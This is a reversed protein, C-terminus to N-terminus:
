WKVRGLFELLKKNFLDPKEEHPSHGAGKVTVLEAGAIAEKLIRVPEKFALDQDGWFIITPVRIEGLRPTVHKWNNIAKEVYIYGNVSTTTMRRRSAEKMEPHEEFRQRMMPNSTANYEFVAAMGKTRALEDLRARTEAYDAPRDFGGSTTDVPVLAALKEPYDMAFQMAIIGGLSHGVLCCKRIKLADLVGAVDGAFIKISYDDENPPAASKGCGRCDIAVTRYNQSLVPVQNTWGLTSNTSGHLLVIAEGQGASEYNIGVGNINVLPM